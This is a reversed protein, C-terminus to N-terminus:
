RLRHVSWTWHRDSSQKVSNPDYGLRMVLERVEGLALAAHLSDAFMKRQHDNAGAAYTEVLHNLTPLDDPRLLDRVFLVGGPACIQHMGAFCRTPDPLHHIISNSIVAKFGARRYTLDKADGKEVRIRHGLKATEVNRKAVEIM